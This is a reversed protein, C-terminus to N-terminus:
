RLWILRQQIKWLAASLSSVPKIWVGFRPAREAASVIAVAAHLHNVGGVNIQLLDRIVLHPCM